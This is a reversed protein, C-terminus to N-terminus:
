LATEFRNKLITRSLRKENHPTNSFLTALKIANPEDGSGLM